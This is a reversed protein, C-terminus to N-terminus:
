RISLSVALLEEITAFRIIVTPLGQGDMPVRELGFPPTAADRNCVYVRSCSHHLRVVSLLVNNCYM